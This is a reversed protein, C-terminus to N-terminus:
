LPLQQVEEDDDDNDDDTFQTIDQNDQSDMSLHFRKDQDEFRLDGPDIQGDDLVLEDGEASPSSEENLYRGNSNGQYPSNSQIEDRPTHIANDVLLGEANTDLRPLNRNPNSHTGFDVGPLPYMEQPIHMMSYDLPHGPHHMHVMPAGHTGNPQGSPMHMLPYNGHVVSPDMHMQHAMLGQHHMMDPHLGLQHM